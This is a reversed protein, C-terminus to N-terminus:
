GRTRESRAMYEVVLGSRRHVFAVDRGFAIAHCPRCVVMAGAEEELAISQELDDVYYCLHDLGGGRKLRGKVPCGPYGAPAVLELPVDGAIAVLCVEVKQVPDLTPQIVVRAGEAVFRQIATKMNRVVYGVHALSVEAPM